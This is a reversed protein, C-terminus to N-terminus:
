NMLFLILVGKVIRLFTILDKTLDAIKFAKVHFHSSMDFMDFFM